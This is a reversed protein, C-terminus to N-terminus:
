QFCVQRQFLLARADSDTNSIQPEGSAKLKEKLLKYRLKNQQLRTIKQQINEIKTPNELHKDIKKQNFNARKRNHARSKTGDIAITKGSVLDSDKLFSVYLKVLRRNATRQENRGTKYIKFWLCWFYTKNIRTYSDTM